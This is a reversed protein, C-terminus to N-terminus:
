DPSRDDEMLVLGRRLLSVVAAFVQDREINLSSAAKVIEPMASTEDIMMMVEREVPNLWNVISLSQGLLEARANVRLDSGLMRAEMLGIPGVRRLRSRELLAELNATRARREALFMAEVETGADRPPATVEESRTWPPGFAPDSWRFALLVSVVRLYGQTKLNHAWDHVSDLFEGFDYDGQAHGIAYNAASHERLRLVLIDMPAGGLWNRLRDAIAAGDNEGIETVIQAIGGPALHQPLGAVIRRQVDEGSHGGDRFGISNVPSPVFPPNATILDFREGQVPDFLDGLAVEVNSLGLARANFRTCRVARPNLDVAVVRQAHRAARLAQVGSGTCLDLVYSVPRRVTARALWRSDAGVYMVQDHPVELCGPHPLKPWAHDSFVLSNGVPYLSARARALGEADILLLGSRVLVQLDDPNFIRDL